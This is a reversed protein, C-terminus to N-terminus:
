RSLEVLAKPRLVVPLPNFQSHIDYGRNFRSEEVKAYYLQGMKGVSENFDAPAAYLNFTDMTGLPYAYAKGAEIFKTAQGAANPAVARYEKFVIGGFRFGVKRLDAGLMAPAEATATYAAHVSQHEILEDFFEPSCLVEVGNSTDGLLADEIMRAVEVCKTRVKTTTTGLAMPKTQPAVGYEQWLDAVVVGAGDIVQGKLSGMMLYELTIEHKVKHQGLRDNLYTAVAEQANGGFARLGNVDEPSVHDDHPFHPVAFTRVRRSSREVGQGPAGVPQSTSIRFAGEREEIVAVRSTLGKTRFLGSQTIYGYRIPMLDIAQSIARTSFASFPNKEFM